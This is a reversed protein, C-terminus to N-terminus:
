GKTRIPAVKIRLGSRTQFEDSSEWFGKKIFALGLGKRTQTPESIQCKLIGIAEKNPGVIEEPGESGIVADSLLGELEVRILKRNVQGYTFIREVVEQGPYCGKNRAVFDDLGAELVLDTERVEWGMWPIGADVRFYHFLHMGLFSMKKSNLDKLSEELQERASILYSLRPERPEKWWGKIVEPQVKWLGTLALDPTRNKIELKEQFHFMELHALTKETQNPSVVFLFSDSSQRFFTGIAILTGKGTLFTGCVSSNVALSEINISSMRQLYNSADPGSVEILGWCSLDFFGGQESKEWDTQYSVIEFPVKEGTLVEEKQVPFLKKEITIPIQM